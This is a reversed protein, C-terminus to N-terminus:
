STWAREKVLCDIAAVQELLGPLDDLRLMNPGDCPAQDPDQHVELFLADIGVAAAARALHPVFRRQGGSSAGLAAPLQLSHTADFMVPYGFRRMIALSRMDVVLNHYGFSAGRETLIVESAGFSVLKELVNGMDEPALFQGKKVNVPKGSRAVARLLDTQRCLFAPVQLIDAVAAVTAVQSVDHVDCLLPIGLEGRVRQLIDLGRQLGPGRYSHVSSRNAKDFSSKFIFGLGQQRAVLEIARGMKLLHQENEIVCPGAVLVLPQGGGIRIGNIDIVKAPSAQRITM